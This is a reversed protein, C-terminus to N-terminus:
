DTGEVIVLEAGDTLAERGLEIVLSGHDLSGAPAPRGEIATPLPHFRASSGEAIFIGLGEGRKTILDAPLHPTASQWTLRGAAGPLAPTERFTYRAERTRTMPDIAAVMRGFDLPYSAGDLELTPDAASAAAEALDTPLTATVELTQNDLLRLLPQGPSLYEGLSALRAMVVGDFPASITCRSVALEAGELAARARALGARADALEFESQNLLEQSVNRDGALSRIRRMQKEALALRAKASEGLAQQQQLLLQNDRCDLRALLGGKALQEGVRVPLELLEGATQAVLKSDNLALVTAPASYQPYFLLSGLPAVSVQIAADGEEAHGACAWALLLLGIIPALL